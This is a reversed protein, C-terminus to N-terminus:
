VINSFEWANVHAQYSVHTNLNTIRCFAHSDTVPLSTM